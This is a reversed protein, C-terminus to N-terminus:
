IDKGAEDAQVKWLHTQVTDGAAQERRDLDEGGQSGACM